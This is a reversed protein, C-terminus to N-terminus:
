KRKLIPELVQLKGDIPGAPKLGLIKTILPYINVNEFGAIKKHQLFAPGWAYFSAHMDNMAPDYGHEAAPLRRRRINFAKPPHPVLLINGLRNYKDEKKSYHWRAPTNSTLYVDYDKAEKKLAEYTPQVDNTDKAYLHLLSLAPLVTFKNTDIAAPLSLSNLTDLSTMGHDSVFIFNVNLHLSDVTSVLKGVSEDVFHIAEATEKSDPGFRHEQHDVEPFYFTIFHPRTKEPLQLWNKVAAIRKEITISEGYIYYYTPRIGQIASESAVWYFSASIMKQKEALVWLPTGGYWSSDAVAKKNGLSYVAQKKEDYFTNDVIGHHAPYLGTVISYHNPFTLSPYCPQLYAAEIGSERLKILNTAQYKDALDYRLGDASILIVYPKKQQEVSNERGPIIKQATDQASAIQLQLLLIFITFPTKKILHRM